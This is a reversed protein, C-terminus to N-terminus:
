NLKKNDESQEVLKALILFLLATQIEQLTLFRGSQDIMSWLAGLFYIGAAIRLGLVTLNKTM